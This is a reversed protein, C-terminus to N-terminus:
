QAKRGNRLIVAASGRGLTAAHFAVDDPHIKSLAPSVGDVPQCQGLAAFLLGNRSGTLGHAVRQQPDGLGVSGLHARVGARQIALGGCRM